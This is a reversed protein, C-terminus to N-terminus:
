ALNRRHEIIRIGIQSISLRIDETAQCVFIEFTDAGRSKCSSVSDAVLSRAVIKTFKLRLTEQGFMLLAAGM